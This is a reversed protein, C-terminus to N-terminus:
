LKVFSIVSVFLRVYVFGFKLTDVHTDNIALEFARGSLWFPFQPKIKQTTSVRSSSLPVRQPTSTGDTYHVSYLEKATAMLSM